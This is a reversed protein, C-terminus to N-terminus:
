GCHHDGTSQTGAGGRKKGCIYSGYDITVVNGMSPNRFLMHGAWGTYSITLDDRIAFLSDTGKRTPLVGDGFLFGEKEADQLFRRAVARSRCYIYTHRPANRHTLGRVLTRLVKKERCLLEAITREKYKM